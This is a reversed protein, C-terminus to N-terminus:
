VGRGCKEVQVITYAAFTNTAGNDREFMGNLSSPSADTTCFGGATSIPDWCAGGGQFFFLLKDSDGPIVQFAFDTSTSYICRTEGGPYVLTTADPPMDTIPCPETASM